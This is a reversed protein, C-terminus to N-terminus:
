RRHIHATGLRWRRAGRAAPDAIPQFADDRGGARAFVEVDTRLRLGDHQLSGAMETQDRTGLGEGADDGREELM